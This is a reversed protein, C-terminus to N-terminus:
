GALDGILGFLLWVLVALFALVGLGFAATPWNMPPRDQRRRPKSDEDSRIIREDAM